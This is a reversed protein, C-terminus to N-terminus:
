GKKEEKRVTIVVDPCMYACRACSICSEQDTVIAPRFGMGNLHDALAILNKPCASVCLECGKCREEEFEVKRM